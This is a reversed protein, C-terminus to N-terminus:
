FSERFKIIWYQKDWRPILNMFTCTTPANIWEKQYEFFEKGYEPNYIFFKVLYYQGEVLDDTNDAELYGVIRRRCLNTDINHIKQAGNRDLELLVLFQKKSMAGYSVNRYDEVVLLKMKLELTDSLSQAIVDFYFGFLITLIIIRM